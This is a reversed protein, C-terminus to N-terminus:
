LELFITNLESLCTSLSFYKLPTMKYFLLSITPLSFNIKPYYLKNQCLGQVIKFFSSLLSDQYLNFRWTNSKNGVHPGCLPPLKYGESITGDRTAILYKMAEERTLEGCECWEVGRGGGRRGVEQSQSLCM